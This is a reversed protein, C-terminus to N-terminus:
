LVGRIGGVGSHWGAGIHVQFEFGLLREKLTPANLLSTRTVPSFTMAADM